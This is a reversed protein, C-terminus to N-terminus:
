PDQTDAKRSRGYAVDNTRHLKRVIRRLLMRILPAAQENMEKFQDPEILLCDVLSVTRVSRTHPIGEILALEGFVEGRGLMAIRTHRGNDAERFVEVEGSEILFIGVPEDGERFIITDPDFSIPQVRM